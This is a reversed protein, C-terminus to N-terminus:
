TNVDRGADGECQRLAVNLSAQEDIRDLGAPQGALMGGIRRIRADMAVRLQERGQQGCPTRPKWASLAAARSALVRQREPAQDHGARQAETVQAQWEALAARLDAIDAAQATADATRARHSATFALMATTASAVFAILIVVLAVRRGNAGSAPMEPEPNNM